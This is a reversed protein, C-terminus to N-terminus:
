EPNRVRAIAACDGVRRAVTCCLLNLEDSDTVAIILNASKIGAEIQTGFSAGNGVIGMVDYHNTLEQVVQPKKDIVTIDHGECSLEAVLTAGVQGCGVIIINLRKSTNKPLKIM